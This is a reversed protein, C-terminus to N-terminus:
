EEKTKFLIVILVVTLVIAGLWFCAEIINIIELM